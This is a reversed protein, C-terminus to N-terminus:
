LQLIIFKILLIGNLILGDIEYHKEKKIVGVIGLIVGIINGIIM